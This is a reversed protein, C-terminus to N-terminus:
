WTQCESDRTHHISCGQTGRECYDDEARDTAVSEDLAALQRAVSNCADVVAQDAVALELEREHPDDDGHETCVDGGSDDVLTGEDDIVCRASCHRCTVEPLVAVPRSATLTNVCVPRPEIPGLAAALADRWTALTQDPTNHLECDPGCAALPLWVLNMDHFGHATM